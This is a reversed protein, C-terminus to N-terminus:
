RQNVPMQPLTKDTKNFGQIFGQDDTCAFICHTSGDYHTIKYCHNSLWKKADKVDRVDVFGSHIDLYCNGTKTRKFASLASINTKAAAIYYTRFQGNDHSYRFALKEPTIKECRYM